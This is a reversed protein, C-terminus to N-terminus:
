LSKGDAAKTNLRKVDVHHLMRVNVATMGPFFHEFRSRVMCASGCAGCFYHDMKKTAFSYSCFQEIRGKSFVVRENPVYVLLYSNRTCISCNCETVTSSPSDLPPSITVSYAFAGCHCSANYTAAPADAAPATPM